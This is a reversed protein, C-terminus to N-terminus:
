LSTMNTVTCPCFLWQSLDIIFVIVIFTVKRLNAVRIYVCYNATECSSFRVRRQSKCVAFSTLLTACCFCTNVATNQLLSLYRSQSVSFFKATSSTSLPSIKESYVIHFVLCNQAHIHGSLIEMLYHM